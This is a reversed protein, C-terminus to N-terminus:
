EGLRVAFSFCNAARSSDPSRSEDIRAGALIVTRVCIEFSLIQLAGGREVCVRQWPSRPASLAARIGM